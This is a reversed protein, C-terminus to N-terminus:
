INLHKMSAATAGISIFRVTEVFNILSHLQSTRKSKLFARTLSFCCFLGLFDVFTWASDTQIRPTTTNRQAPSMGTNSSQAKLTVICKRSTRGPPALADYIVIKFTWMKYTDLHKNEIPCCRSFFPDGCSM